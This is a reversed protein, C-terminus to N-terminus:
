LGSKWKKIRSRATIRYASEKENRAETQKDTFHPTAIFGM